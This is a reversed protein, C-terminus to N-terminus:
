INELSKNNNLIFSAVVQLVVQRVVGLKLFGSKLSPIHVKQFQMETRM